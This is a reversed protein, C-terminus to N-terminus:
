VPQQRSEFPNPTLLPRSSASGGSKCLLVLAVQIDSSDGNLFLGCKMTMVTVVTMSGKGIPKRSSPGLGARMM